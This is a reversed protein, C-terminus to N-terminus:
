NKPPITIHPKSPGLPGKFIDVNRKTNDIISKSGPLSNKIKDWGKSNLGPIVYDWDSTPRATGNARSGVVNIPKNIRTAANQIRTYEGSSLTNMSGEATTTVTTTSQTSNATKGADNMGSRSVATGKPLNTSSAVGLGLYSTVVPAWQAMGWGKNQKSADIIFGGSVSAREHPFGKATLADSIEGVTANDPAIHVYGQLTLPENGPINVIQGEPSTIDVYWDDLMGTPDVRNVPNNSCYAYPSINFRKEALPDISTWVPIHQGDLFRAGFDYLGLPMGNLTENQLEKGGYLYKKIPIILRLLPALPTTTPRSSYSAGQRHTKNSVGSISPMPITLILGLIAM